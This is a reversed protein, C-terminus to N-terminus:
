RADTRGLGMKDVEILWDKGGQVKRYGCQLTHRRTDRHTLGDSVDRGVTMGESRINKVGSMYANGM